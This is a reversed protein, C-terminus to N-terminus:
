PKYPIAHGTALLATALDDGGRNVNGLLRGFADRRCTKIEVPGRALWEATFQKAAKGAAATTGRMEPADVGLLRIREVAVLGLWIELEADFTDADITKIPTANVIWCGLLCILAWSRRHM